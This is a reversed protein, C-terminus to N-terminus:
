KEEGKKVIYKNGKIDVVEVREGKNISEGTQSVVNWVVGNIKITGMEDKTVDSLLVYENGVISETNTKLGDGKLFFRLAIKRLSLLLVLSVSIFVILQVVLPVKCAALIMALIGGFAFWISALDFTTFEIVLSLVTVGLWIWIEM